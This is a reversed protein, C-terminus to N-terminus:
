IINSIYFMTDDQTLLIVDLRHLFIFICAFIYVFIFLYIYLILDGTFCELATSGLQMTDTTSRILQGFSRNFYSSM